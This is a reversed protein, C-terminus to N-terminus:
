WVQAAYHELDARKVKWGRGQRAAKLEGKKIAALLSQKSMSVLAAADALTLIIKEAIRVAPSATAALPPTTERRRQLATQKSVQVLAKSTSTDLPPPQTKVTRLTGIQAMQEKLKVVESTQYVADQGGKPRKRYTVHLLKRDTYRQIAKTSVQLYQAAEQKTMLDEPNPIASQPETM